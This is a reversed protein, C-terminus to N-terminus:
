RSFNFGILIEIYSWELYFSKKIGSVLVFQDMARCSECKSILQPTEAVYM